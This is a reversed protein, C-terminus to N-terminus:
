HWRGIRGVAATERSVRDRLAAFWFVFAASPDVSCRLAVSKPDFASALVASGRRICVIRETCVRFPEGRCVRINSQGAEELHNRGPSWVGSVRRLDIDISGRAHAGRGAAGLRDLRWGGRGVRSGVPLLGRRSCTVYCRGGNDVVVNVTASSWCGM